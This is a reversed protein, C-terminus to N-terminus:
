YNRNMRTDQQLSVSPVFNLGEKEMASPLSHAQGQDLYFSEQVHHLEKHRVNRVRICVIETM